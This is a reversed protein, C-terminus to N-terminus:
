RTGRVRPSSPSSTTPLSSGTSSSRSHGQRFPEPPYRRRVHAGRFRRTAKASKWASPLQPDVRLGGFEGRLGMLCAVVLHNYWAITGTSPSHSSEGADRGVAPGKFFNPVYLPPQGSKKITNGGAGTLMVRLYRWADDAERAIYMAYSYWAVASNYVAGNEDIGANKVTVKGLSEDFHTYAPWNLMPGSPTWLYKEVAAMLAKRRKADAVGTIVAWGQPNLWIKGERDKSSGFTEGSDKTGRVYWKGDWAYKNIAKCLNHAEKEYRAARKTDGVAECVPVWMDLAWVLNQSLMVSEGKMKHGAMNLPDCWDGQGLRSLGRPSRDKLLWDLGMCLHEYLTAKGPADSFGLKEDLISMDGTETVYTYITHPGWANIDRHPIANIGSITAGPALKLGHPMWGSKEQCAWIKLCWERVKAPDMYVTGMVDTMANRGCPSFSSRLTRGTWHAQKPLWHNVFCNFDSDPTEVTLDSAHAAIFRDLTAIAKDVGGKSLYKKKLRTVEAM